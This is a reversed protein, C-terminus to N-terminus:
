KKNVKVKVPRIVRGNLTYGKQMILTVTNPPYEDTDDLMMAEHFNPDFEDGEKLKIQELGHKALAEKMQKLTLEVGERLPNKDKPDGHQLAMELHDMVPLLSEMIKTGAYKTRDEMEKATRKRFNDLEAYARLESNKTEKIDSELNEIKEKLETLEDKEGETQEEPTEYNDDITEDIRRDSM